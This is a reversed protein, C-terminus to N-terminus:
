PKAKIRDVADRASTFDTFGKGYGIVSGVAYAIVAIVLMAIIIM